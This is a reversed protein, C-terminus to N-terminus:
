EIDYSLNPHERELEFGVRRYLRQAPNESHISIYMKDHGKEEARQFSDRLLAGGIGRNRHEEKV